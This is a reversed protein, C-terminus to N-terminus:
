DGPQPNWISPWGPLLDVAFSERRYIYWAYQADGFTGPGFASSRNIMNLASSYSNQVDEESGFQRYFRALALWAEMPTQDIFSATKLAIDAEASRGLGALAMGLGRYANGANIGLRSRFIKEAAAYDGAYLQQLGDDKWNSQSQVVALAKQWAGDMRFFDADAWGPELTIARTYAETALDLQGDEVYIRGLDLWMVASNPAQDTARLMASIAGAKDGAARRLIALNAWHLPYITEHSLGHEFAKIAELLVSRDRATGDSNLATEGLAFGKQFEYYVNGPDRKTAEDLWLAASKWDSQNAANVGRIFATYGFLSWGSLMVAALCAVTLTAAPVRGAPAQEAKGTTRIPAFILALIVATGINTWIIIEPTDFLNHVALGTLSAALGTFVTRQGKPLARWHRYVAIAIALALVLLPASALLGSEALTNLFFNHAHTLLMEPPISYAKIFSLGFTGPGSGTLPDQRFMEYAVSWIYGRSNSAKVHSPHNLQRNVIVVALSCVLLLALAGIAFQVKHSLLWARLRSLSEKNDLALLIVMTLLMAASGLWGGRSSTFYLLVLGFAIWAVLFFRTVKRRSILARSIALPILLNLFAALMNPHGLSSGIRITAPPVLNAWGGIQFWGKWWLTLQLIGLGLPFLGALLLTKVWLEQPWGSRILDVVLYYALVYVLSATFYELSLRPNTSFFVSIGTAALWIWLPWDILTTPFPRKRWIRWGIWALGILAALFTNIQHISFLVSGNYGGGIILLYVLILFLLGEQILYALPRNPSTEM